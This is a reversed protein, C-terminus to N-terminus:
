SSKRKDVKINRHFPTILDLCLGKEPRLFHPFALITVSHSETVVFTKAVGMFVLRAIQAKHLIDRNRKQLFIVLPWQDGCQLPWKKLNCGNKRIKLNRRPRSQMHNCPKSKIIPAQWSLGLPERPMAWHALGVLSSGSKNIISSSRAAAVRQYLNHTSSIVNQHNKEGWFIIWFRPLM